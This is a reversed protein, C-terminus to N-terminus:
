GPLKLRFRNQPLAKRAHTIAYQCLDKSNIFPIFNHAGLILPVKEAQMQLHSIRLQDAGFTAAMFDTALAAAVAFELGHRDAQRRHIQDTFHGLALAPFAVM